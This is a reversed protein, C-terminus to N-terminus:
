NFQFNQFINRYQLIKDLPLNFNIDLRIGSFESGRGSAEIRAFGGLEKQYLFPLPRAPKGDFQLKLLLQEDQTSLSVKAWQYEFDKLAEQVLELQHYQPTGKPIGTTLIDTKELRIHGGQGPTSYLFADDFSIKGQHLRLPIRGNVTGQGEAVGIGAQELLMALNLRDCYLILNYDEIDPRIRFAQTNVNGNCWKFNCSEILFSRANEIEYDLRVESLRLKDTELSEMRIQQAPASRIPILHPMSLKAYLGKISLDLDPYTLTAHSLTAGASGSIRGHTIDIVAAASLDGRTEMGKFAPLLKELAIGATGRSSLRLRCQAQWPEPADMGLSGDAHIAIDPFLRNRIDATVLLGAGKQQLSGKLSGLARQQRFVTNVALEGEPHTAAPPWTVPLTVSIDQLETELAQSALKGSSISLKGNIRNRSSESPSQATLRWQGDFAFSQAQGNVAASTLRPRTATIRFDTLQALGAQTRSVESRASLQLLPVTVAADPTKVELAPLRATTTLNGGNGTGAGTIDFAPIGGSTIMGEMLSAQFRSDQPPPADPPSKVDLRWTGDRGQGAIFVAPLKLPQDIKLLAITDEKTEPLTLLFHGECEMADQEPTLAAEVPGINFSLPSFPLPADVALANLHLHWVHPPVDSLVKQISVSIPQRDHGTGAANGIRFGKYSSGQDAFDCHFDASALTFPNWRFIASGRLDLQGALVLGPLRNTFDAFREAQIKGGSFELQGTQGMLDVEADLTMEQGRPYLRLRSKMDYRNPSLRIHLAFPLRFPVDEWQGALAAKQIDLAKIWVPLSRDPPADAPAATSKLLTEMDLGRPTIRHHHIDCYLVVGSILVRRIEGSLLEPLSYDIQVSDIELTTAQGSGIFLPGIDAGDLGIRRIDCHVDTLGTNQTLGPILHTEIYRPLFIHFAVLSIAVISLLSLLALGMMACARKLTM